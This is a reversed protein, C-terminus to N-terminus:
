VTKLSAIEPSASQHSDQCQLWSLIGQGAERGDFIATVVLDSGRVMDGGAFVKPNTTQYPFHGNAPAIVKGTEDMGIEHDDFWPRPSPKFGFALVVRDAQIFTESDPVIEPVRRGRLDPSGLRTEAVKVGTVQEDGVIYIPQSNWRFRVGEEIANEVERRSGPMNEMDRRYVCTVSAAGQRIATRTCDMATDGGGLVVVHQNRFNMFENQTEGLLCLTNSVLYPL